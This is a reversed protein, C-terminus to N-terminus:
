VQRRAEERKKLFTWLAFGGVVICLAGVGSGVFNVMFDLYGAQEADSRLSTAQDVFGNLKYQCENAFSVASDFDGESYALKAKSLSLGAEDLASLLVSINAGAKEAEFAADYCTLVESEATEIATKAENESYAFVPPVFLVAFVVLFIFITTIFRVNSLL